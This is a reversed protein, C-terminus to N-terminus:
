GATLPSSKGERSRLSPSVTSLRSYASGDYRAVGNMKGRWPAGTERGHCGGPSPCGGLPELCNNSILSFALLRGKRDPLYGSLSVMHSLTGTKARVRGEAPTNQMRRMLTGDVGAVPLSRSFYLFYPHHAMYDLLQVVEGPTILNLRSLGSGDYIALTEPPIGMGALSERMVRVAEETTGRGGSLTGLTHFLLEAYLNQSRKNTEEIIRSLPASRHSLLMSMSHYDPPEGDRGLERPNGRVEIGSRELVEKLVTMTYLTPNAAAFRMLLPPGGEDIRGSLTIVAGGFSRRADVETTEGCGSTVVKNRIRVYATEPSIRIGAAAGSKKGPSLTVEFCNDNFSVASIRASYGALEDDWAWGRGLEADDFLGADGVLDGRIERIGQRKMEDAWTEFVSTASGQFRESITPDGSGRLFLGGNLVGNEVPGGAYLNTTYRFGPGLRILAVATTFLKMTSAPTFLKGENMQFLTKGTALSRVSIGWLGQSLASGDILEQLGNKSAQARGAPPTQASLTHASIPACSTLMLLLGPLLFGCTTVPSNMPKRQIYTVM